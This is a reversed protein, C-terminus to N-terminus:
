KGFARRGNGDQSLYRGLMGGRDYMAWMVQGREMQVCVAWPDGESAMLM